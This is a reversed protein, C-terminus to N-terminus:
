RGRGRPSTWWGVSGMLGADALRVGPCPWLVFESRCRSARCFGDVSPEHAARLAHAVSWLLRLQRRTKIREGITHDPSPRRPM